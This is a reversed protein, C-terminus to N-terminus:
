YASIFPELVDSNMERNKGMNGLAMGLLSYISLFLYFITSIYIYTYIYICNCVCIYISLPCTSPQISLCSIPGDQKPFHSCVTEIVWEVHILQTDVRHGKPTHYILSGFIAARSFILIHCSYLFYTIFVVFLYMKYNILLCHTIRSFSFPSSPLHFLSSLPSSTPM